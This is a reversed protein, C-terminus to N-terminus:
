CHIEWRRDAVFGVRACRERPAASHTLYEGEAVKTRATTQAHLYPIRYFLVIASLLALVSLHAGKAIVSRYRHKVFSLSTARFRSDVAHLAAQDRRGDDWEFKGRQRAGCWKDNLLATTEIREAKPNQCIKDLRM